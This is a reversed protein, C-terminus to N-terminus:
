SLAQRAAASVGADPHNEAVFRLAESDGAQQLQALKDGLARAIKAAVVELGTANGIAILDATRDDTLLVQVSPKHNALKLAAERRTEEWASAKAVTLLVERAPPDTLHRALQDVIYARIPDRDMQAERKQASERQQDAAAAIEKVDALIHEPVGATDEEADIDRFVRSTLGRRAASVITPRLQRRLCGGWALPEYVGREILLTTIRRAAAESGTVLLTGLLEWQEQEVLRDVASQVQTTTAAGIVMEIQDRYRALTNMQM